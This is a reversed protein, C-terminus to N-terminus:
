FIKTLFLMKLDNNEYEINVKECIRAVLLEDFADGEGMLEWYQDYEVDHHVDM